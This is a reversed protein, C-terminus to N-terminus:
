PRTANMPESAASNLGPVDPRTRRGTGVCDPDWRAGVTSRRSAALALSLVMMGPLPPDGIVGPAFHDAQPAAADEGLLTM